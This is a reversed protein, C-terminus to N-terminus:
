VADFRAGAIIGSDKLRNGMLFGENTYILGVCILKDGITSIIIGNENIGIITGASAPEIASSVVHADLFRIIREDLKTVAGKNWPNCAHILAVISDADMTQWNISIDVALQRPYYCAKSHDQPRSPIQMGFGAIRLLTGVLRTALESLKTTLIGYTDTSNLHIKDSLVVPGTDFGDDVKHISVAAYQEKNRIQWFVPDPGRYAPLPGPHINYFGQVPLTYIAEPLRYSFTFVLGMTPKYTSIAAQLKQLVNQKTVTIVPMDSDKMLLQVQQIFDSCHAPIVIAALQKYFFLDRLVPLAIRGGCLLIIKPEGM